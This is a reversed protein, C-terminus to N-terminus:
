RGSGGACPSSAAGARGSRCRGSRERGPSRASRRPRIWRLSVRMQVVSPQSAHTSRRRFRSTSREGRCGSVDLHGAGLVGAGRRRRPLCDTRSRCRDSRGCSSAPRSRPTEHGGCIGALVDRMGVASDVANSSSGSGSAVVVTANSSNTATTSRLVSGPGDRSAAHQSPVATRALRRCRGANSSDHLHAVGGWPRRVRQRRPRSRVAPRSLQM